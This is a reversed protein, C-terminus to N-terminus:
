KKATLHKLVEKRSFRYGDMKLRPIQGRIAMEYAKSQSISLLRQLGKIDIIQDAESKEIMTLMIGELMEVTVVLMTGAPLGGVSNIINSTNTHGM